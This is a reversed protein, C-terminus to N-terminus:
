SLVRTALVLTRVTEVGAAQLADSAAGLTAGTTQVDDILLVRKASHLRGCRFAGRVNGLRKSRPLDVQSQTYRVRQLGHLRAKVGLARAVPKALLASQDFGRQRRRRSHLPVHVVADVCGILPKAADAMLAGFAPALDSRGEYKFRHIADAIPGGYLFVAGDTPSPELLSQCSLCFPSPTATTCSLCTPPCLLDQLGTALSRIAQM